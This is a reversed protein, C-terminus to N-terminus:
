RNRRRCPSLRGRVVGGRRMARLRFRHCVPVPDAGALAREAQKIDEQIKRFDDGFEGQIDSAANWPIDGSNLRSYIRDWLITWTKLRVACCGM